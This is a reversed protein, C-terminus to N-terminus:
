FLAPFQKLGVQILGERGGGTKREFLYEGDEGLNSILV